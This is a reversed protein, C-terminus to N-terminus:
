IGNTHYFSGYSTLNNRHINNKINFDISAIVNAELNIPIVCDGKRGMGKGQKEFPFGSNAM